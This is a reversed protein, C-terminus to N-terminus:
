HYHPPKNQNPNSSFSNCKDCHTPNSAHIVSYIDPDKIHLEDPNIRVIPGTNHVRAILVHHVHVRTAWGLTRMSGCEGYMIHMRDVEWIYQGGIGNVVDFYCEYWKTAAALKPGPFKALPHLTLRYLILVAYLLAGGCFVGLMGPAFSFNIATM